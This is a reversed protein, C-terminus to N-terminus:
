GHDRRELRKKLKDKVKKVEAKQDEKPLNAIGLAQAFASTKREKDILLELCRQEGDSLGARIAALIQRDAQEAEERLELPVSPDDDRGLYKGGGPSQEVSELSVRARWHREEKKLGNQLDGQASMQLFAFLPHDAHNRSPDFSAPKKCLAMFAIHVAEEIFEAPISKRNARTLAEIMPALYRIALDAPAVPDGEMLRRHLDLEQAPSLTLDAM